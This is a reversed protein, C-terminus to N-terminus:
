KAKILLSSGDLSVKGPVENMAQIDAERGTASLVSISHWQIEWKGGRRQATGEVPSGAPIMVAKDPLVFTKTRAMIVTQGRDGLRTSAIKVPIVTGKPIIMYAKAAEQTSPKSRGRVSAQAARVPSQGHATHTM